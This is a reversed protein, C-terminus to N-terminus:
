RTKALKKDFTFIKANKSKSIELLFCDVFELSTKKYIELAKKFLDREEVHLYSTSVLSTLKEIIETKPIKYLRFLAYYVEFIVIQPIIIKLKKQQAKILLDKGIETQSPVDNQLLRLLVNTDVIVSKM